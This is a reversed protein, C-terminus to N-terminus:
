VFSLQITVNIKLFITFKNFIIDLEPKAVKKNDQSLSARASATKLFSLSTFFDNKM